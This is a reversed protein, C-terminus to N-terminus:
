RYLAIASGFASALYVAALGLAAAAEVWAAPLGLRAHRADRAATEALALLCRQRLREARRADVDHRGLGALGADLVGAERSSTM